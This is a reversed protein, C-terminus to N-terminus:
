GRRLTARTNNKRPNLSNTRYTLTRSWPTKTAEQTSAHRRPPEHTSRTLHIRGWYNTAKPKGQWGRQVLQKAVFLNILAHGFVVVRQSRGVIAELDDAALLARKKAASYTEGYGKRGAMWLARNLYVWTWANLRLPLRYRPIEMERMRPLVIDPTRGSCLEASHVARSLDSSVVVGTQAEAQLATPPRSSAAVLSRDYRRVWQSFGASNVRENTASQPKGHRILYIDM